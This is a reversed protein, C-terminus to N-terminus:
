SGPPDTPQHATNLILRRSQPLVSAVQTDSVIRTRRRFLGSTVLLKASAEADDSLEVATVWGPWGDGFAVAFGHCRALLSAHPPRPSRHGASPEERTQAATLM